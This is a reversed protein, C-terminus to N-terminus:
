VRVDEWAKGCSGGSGGAGLGSAERQVLACPQTRVGLAPLSEIALIRGAAREWPGPYPRSRGPCSQPRACRPPGRGTGHQCRPHRSPKTSPSGAAALPGPDRSGGSSLVESTPTLESVGRNQVKEWDFSNSILLFSHCTRKEKTIWGGLGSGGPATEATAAPPQCPFALPSPARARGRLPLPPPQRETTLVPDVRLPSRRHRTALHPRTACAM